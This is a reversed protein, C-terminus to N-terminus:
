YRYRLLRYLRYFWHKINTVPNKWKRVMEDHGTIAQEYTSYREIDAEDPFVMTEFILPEGEDFRHNLGLFVTSVFKGTWLKEQKIIRTDREFSRAWERADEVPIVNHDKDMIYYESM